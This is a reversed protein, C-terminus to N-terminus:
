TDRVDSCNLFLCGEVQVQPLMRFWTAYNDENRPFGDILFRKKEWGNKEMAERLLNVTVEAPVISGAQMCSEIMNGLESGSGRAERLLEGASLHIFESFASVIRQCQTGKGSGPGGLVFVILPFAM